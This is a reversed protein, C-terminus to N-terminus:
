EGRAWIINITCFADAVYQHHYLKYFGHRDFNYGDEPEIVMYGCSNCWLDPLQSFVEGLCDMTNCSIFTDWYYRGCVVSRLKKKRKEEMMERTGKMIEDIKTGLSVKEEPELQFLINHPELLKLVRHQVRNNENCMDLTPGRIKTFDIRVGSLTFPGAQPNCKNKTNFIPKSLDCYVFGTCVSLILIHTLILM